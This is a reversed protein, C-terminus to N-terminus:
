HVIVRHVGSMVAKQIQHVNGSDEDDIMLDLDLCTLLDRQYLEICPKMGKSDIVYGSLVIDYKIKSSASKLLDLLIEQIAERNKGFEWFLDM